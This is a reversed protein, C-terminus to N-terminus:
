SRRPVLLAFDARRGCPCSATARSEALNSPAQAARHSAVSQARHFEDNLVPIHLKIPQSSAGGFARHVHLVGRWLMELVSMVDASRVRARALASAHIRASPAARSEAILSMLGIRTRASCIGPELWRSTPLSGNYGGRNADALQERCDARSATIAATQRTVVVM